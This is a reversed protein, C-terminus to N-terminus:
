PVNLVGVRLKARGESSFGTHIRFESRRCVKLRILFELGCRGGHALDRVLGLLEPEEQHELPVNVEDRLESAAAEFLERM